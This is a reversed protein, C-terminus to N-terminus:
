VAMITLPWNMANGTPDFYYALNPLQDGLTLVEPYALLSMLRGLWVLCLM